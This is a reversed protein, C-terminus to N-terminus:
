DSSAYMGMLAPDVNTKKALDAATVSDEVDSLIDFIKTDLGVCALPLQIAQFSKAITEAHRTIIM